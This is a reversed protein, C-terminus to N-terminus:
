AWAYKGSRKPLVERSIGLVKPITLAVPALSGIRLDQDPKMAIKM